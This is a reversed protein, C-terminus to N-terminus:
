KGAVIYIYADYNRLPTGSGGKKLCGNRSGAQGEKKLIKAEGGRKEKRGEKLTNWITGGWRVYGGRARIWM